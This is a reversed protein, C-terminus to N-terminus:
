SVKASFVQLRDKSICGLIGSGPTPAFKVDLIPNHHPKLNQLIGLSPLAYVSLGQTSEDGYAFLPNCNEVNVVASKLLRVDNVNASTCAVNQYCNGVLRKILVHSGQIGRGGVTPSPTLPSQSSIIDNSTQVPRFSAVIDDSSPCCAVSICVGQNELKPILFPREGAAGTNWVCPGIASATLLTRVDSPSPSKHLISNITHVPKPKLGTLSELPNAAHRMDFVLLMGNQLGAYLYHPSNLDWSCSWASGPLDYTVVINNSEMSLVSLKKGLSAFLALKSGYPSVHLDKVNKTTVPLQINESDYPYMLSIKTLVHNGGMGPLCRALILIQNSADIDMIKAGELVLEDELAFRCCNSGQAGYRSGLTHGSLRQRQPDGVCNFIESTGLRMQGSTVNMESTGLRMEGSTVNELLSAAECMKEEEDQCIKEHLAAIKMKLFENEAQLSLVKKQEEGDVVAIQSIYLKIIDKVGCKKSCQPCKAASKKDCQRIWKEICSFGYVHGCPLCCVQHKGQSSWYDMCIACCATDVESSQSGITKELSSSSSSSTTIGVDDQGAVTFSTQHQLEDSRNPSTTTANSNTRIIPAYDEDDELDTLEEDEELELLEEPPSLLPM